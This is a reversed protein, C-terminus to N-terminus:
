LLRFALVHPGVARAEWAARDGRRDWHEATTWLFDLTALEGTGRHRFDVQFRVPLEAVLTAPSPGDERASTDM